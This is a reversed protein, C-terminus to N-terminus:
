ANDTVTGVVYAIAAVVLAIVVIVVVGIGSIAIIKFAESM